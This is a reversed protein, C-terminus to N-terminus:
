DSISLGKVTSQQGGVLGGLVDTYDFQIASANYADKVPTTFLYIYPLDTALIEQLQFAQERAADLDTEALFTACLGDLEENTYNLVNLGGSTAFFECLYDPYLSLGWGLIYMDWDGGAFVANVINNFNTLEAKVPIGLDQMYQEIFVGATARLPDYGPSPALLSMESLEAGDPGILTTGRDISGGRGENWVPETEWSYGAEKLISMSEEFREQATFGDCFITVDNNYWFANGAPVATNVAIAAGQLLGDTLFSKDIMCNIAQRLAVNQFEPKAFNFAMYRFGNSPNETVTLDPNSLIQDVQGEQLGLSSYIMDVENNVLALVAADNSYISYIINSAYPGDVIELAVDGSADGYAVFESGGNDTYKYAGNAYLTTTEGSYAYSENAVNEAFAGVEWQGFQFPGASPEGTNDATYLQQRLEEFQAESDEAAEDIEAAADLLPQVKEGWYHAPLLPGLLTGFQHVALGPILENGEEDTAFYKFTITYDDEVIVEALYEERYIAAWNDSLNLGFATDITFKMDNATVPTGDSWMVDDRLSVTTTWFEGDNELDTPFDVALSPVWDNRQPSYAYLSPYYQGLVYANWVTSDPGLYAWYNTTTLDSLMAVRFTDFSGFEFTPVPTETPIVEVEVIKEVVETVVVPTGEVEVVKEEVQLVTVEVIKEVVEPEPAACSALLIGFVFLSVVALLTRRQLM